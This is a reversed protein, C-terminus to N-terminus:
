GHALETISVIVLEAEKAQNIADLLNDAYITIVQCQTTIIQYM